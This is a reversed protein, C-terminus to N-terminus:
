KIINYKNLIIINQEVIVIMINNDLNNKMFPQRVHLMTWIILMVEKIFLFLILVNHKDNSHLCKDNNENESM